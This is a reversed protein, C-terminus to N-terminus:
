YIQNNYTLQKLKYFIYKYLNLNINNMVIITYYTM